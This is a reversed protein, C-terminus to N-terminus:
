AEGRAKTIASYWGSVIPDSKVDDIDRGQENCVVTVYNDAADQLAELLEPAVALSALFKASKIGQVLIVNDARSMQEIARATYFQKCEIYVGSSLKFDLRTEDFNPPLCFAEAIIKEVPDTITHTM